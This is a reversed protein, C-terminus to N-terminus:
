MAEGFAYGKVLSRDEDGLTLEAVDCLRMVLSREKQFAM